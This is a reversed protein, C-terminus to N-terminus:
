EARIAHIQFNGKRYDFPSYLTHIRKKNALELMLAGKFFAVAENKRYRFKLHEKNKGFLSFSSLLNTDCYFMPKPLNIGFPEMSIIDSYLHRSFQNINLKQVYTMHPHRFVESRAKIQIAKRFQEINKENSTISLGAAAQHGGHKILHDACNNIVNIISFGSGNVSRASGTGSSTIVIAPKKYKEAIRSAIIGIIGNHFDGHVVIVKDHYLQKKKIQEEAIIFQQKTMEKRKANLAILSTIESGQIYEKTLIDVAINPDSIRGCSNFIPGLLFGITSSDIEKVYLEEFIKGFVPHPNIMMKKLGEKCIVRNEDTIPMIDAMTGLAALEIYTMFDKDLERKAAEYLAQVVKLAVGAGSLATFPYTNDHRMPNIFAHCNPYPGLIEHHDTVIVDIGKEKALQLAEHSSTGNDVTVILSINDDVKQMSQISLGYGENRLPLRYSVKGTFKKLALYLISTATIGDVDYDGFILINEKQKLAKIIRIVAKKMDNLLFPHHLDTRIDPMFFHILKEENNFGHHFLYHALIPDINLMRSYYLIYAYKAHQELPHDFPIWNSSM